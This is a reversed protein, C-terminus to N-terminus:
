KTERDRSDFLDSLEPFKRRALRELNKRIEAATGYSWASKVLNKAQDYTINRIIRKIEPIRYPTASIEDLGLGILLITFVPSEPLEGCIGVWLGQDRGAKVCRKIQRLIAPHFPDYLHQVYRNDRDVALSYQVLDNTGISFFDVEKALLHAIAVASPTEIMIGLQIRDSYALGEATLEAKVSEIIAKTARIEERGSVMPIMLRLDGFASARYIARLHTKFIEPNGLAYRIGRWGLSPNDERPFNMYPAVKEGGLDMCRIIVPDPAVSELVSRYAEYQFEESPFDPQSLFMYETRFLGIGAAGQERAGIVEDPLEINALLEIKRGDRTEAPYDKYRLSEQELDVYAQKLREFRIEAEADPHLLVQGSHGDVMITDGDRVADLLGDVGVVVPIGISRGLIVSHSAEGGLETVFGLVKDRSMTVTDSPSIDRAVVIVQEQLDRFGTDKRGQLQGIVRREVDRLDGVRDPLGGEISQLSRIITECARVYAAEACLLGEISARVQALLTEDRLIFRHADFIRAHDEGIEDAVRNRHSKIERETAALAADLRALEGDVEAPEIQRPRATPLDHIYLLVEGRAIGPAGAQGSFRKMIRSDPPM